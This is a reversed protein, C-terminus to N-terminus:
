PTTGSVITIPEFAEAYMTRAQLGRVRLLAEQYGRDFYPRRVQTGYYSLAELKIDVHQRSLRVFMTAVSARVNWPAEFGLLATGRFARLAERHVTEHDQHTDASCPAFVVDPQVLDRLRVLEDLVDQRHKAMRRVPFQAVQVPEAGLCGVAARHEEGLRAAAAGFSHVTSLQAVLVRAGQEALWALTGGACLEVDDPHPSLALVTRARSLDVAAM